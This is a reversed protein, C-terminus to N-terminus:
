TINLFNKLKDIDSTKDPESYYYSGVKDRPSRHIKDKHFEGFYLLWMCEWFAITEAFDKTDIKEELVPIRLVNNEDLYDIGFNFVNKNFFEINSNIWEKILPQELSNHLLLIKKLKTNEQKLYNEFQLYNLLTDYAIAIEQNQNKEFFLISNLNLLPNALVYEQLAKVNKM